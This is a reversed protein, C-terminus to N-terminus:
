ENTGKSMLKSGAAMSGGGILASILMAYEDSHHPDFIILVVCSLISVCFVVLHYLANNM